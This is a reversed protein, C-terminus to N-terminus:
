DETPPNCGDDPCGAEVWDKLGELTEKPLDVNIKLGDPIKVEEQYRYFVPEVGTCPVEQYFGPDISDWPAKKNIPPEKHRYVCVTYESGLESALDILFNNKVAEGEALAEVKTTLGAVDWKSVIYIDSSKYPNIFNILRAMYGSKVYSGFIIGDIPMSVTDVVSLNDTDAFIISIIDTSSYEMTKRAVYIIKNIEDRHNNDTIMLWQKIQM